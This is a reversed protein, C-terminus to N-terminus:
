ARGRGSIYTLVCTAPVVLGALVMQGLEPAVLAWATGIAILAAVVTFPKFISEERSGSWAAAIAASVYALFCILTLMM